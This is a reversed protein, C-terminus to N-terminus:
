VLCRGNEAVIRGRKVVLKRPTRNMVAETLTEGELVVFDARCGEDLGYKEAKLV